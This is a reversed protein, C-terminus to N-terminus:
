ASRTKLSTNVLNIPPVTIMSGLTCGDSLTKGPVLKAALIPRSLASKVDSSYSIIQFIGFVQISYFLGPVKTPFSLALLTDFPSTKMWVM